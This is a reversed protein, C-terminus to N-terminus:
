PAHPISFLRWEGTQVLLTPRLVQLQREIAPSSGQLLLHTWSSLAARTIIPHRPPQVGDRLGLVCTARWAFADDTTAGRLSVLKPWHWLANHRAWPSLPRVFSTAVRAGAPVADLVRQFDGM